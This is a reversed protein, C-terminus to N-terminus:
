IMPAKGKSKSQTKAQTSSSRGRDQEDDHEKERDRHRHRDANDDRHHGRKHERDQHRAPDHDRGRSSEVDRDDQRRREQWDDDLGSPERDDMYRRDSSDPRDNERNSPWTGRDRSEEGYQYDSEAVNSSEGARYGHEDGTWRGMNPGEMGARPMMGISNMPMGRRFHAPPFPTLRGSFPLTLGGSFGGYGGIRGMPGRFASYFGQGMMTQPHILSSAAGIGQRLGGGANGMPGGFGPHFGQGMMTQPHNSSSAAGIGQRLGGGANGMPGGFGPHFGQGMMTQPHNSSPAAGIGQRLGGGANGMPGGFGPHFGQGMMTQPHNSSSAAGIGQELGGGANGMLERGVVGDVRNRKPGLPGRVGMMQPGARGLNGGDQFNGVTANYRNIRNVSATQSLSYYLDIRNMRGEELSKLSSPSAFRVVCARGNFYHGDMGERCAMAAAPESFEARCYGNSKGSAIEDFFKVDEVAGYRSLELEVQADTTWWHLNGVFLITGGSGDGGGLARSSGMSGMANGSVMGRRAMNGNGSNGVNRANGLVNASAATPRQIIERNVINSSANKALDAMKGSPDSCEIKIGGAVSSELRAAPALDRDRMENGRVSMDRSAVIAATVAANGTEQRLEVAKEEEENKRVSQLFNEGVNINNYLDGCDDDDEEEEIEVLFGDDALSPIAENRHGDGFRGGENEEM